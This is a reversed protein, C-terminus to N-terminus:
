LFGDPNVRGRVCQLEPGPWVPHDASMKRHGCVFPYIEM